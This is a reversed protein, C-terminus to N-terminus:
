NEIKKVPQKNTTFIFLLTKTAHEVLRKLQHREIFYGIKGQNALLSRLFYGFTHRRGELIGHLRGFTGHLRGLAGQLLGFLRQIM